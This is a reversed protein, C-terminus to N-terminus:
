RNLKEMNAAAVILEGQRAAATRIQAPLGANDRVLFWADRADLAAQKYAQVVADHQTKNFAPDLGAQQYEATSATVPNNSGDLKLPGVALNIPAAVDVAAEDNALPPADDTTMRRIVRTVTEIIAKNAM